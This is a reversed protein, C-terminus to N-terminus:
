GPPGSEQSVVTTPDHGEPSEVHATEVAGADTWAQQICRDILDLIIRTNVRKKAGEELKAKNAELQRVQSLIRDAFTESKKARELMGLAGGSPANDKAEKLAPGSLGMAEYVWQVDRIFDIRNKEVKPKEIKPKPKIPERLREMQQQIVPFRQLMDARALDEAKKPDISEYKELALSYDKRQIPSLSKVFLDRETM